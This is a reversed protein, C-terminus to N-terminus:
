AGHPFIIISYVYGYRTTRSDKKDLSEWGLEDLLVSAPTEYNSFTLIRAARAIKCNQFKTQHGRASIAGYLVNYMNM